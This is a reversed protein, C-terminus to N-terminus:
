SSMYLIEHISYMIEHVSYIVEHVSYMVEHVCYIIEHVSYVVDCLLGAAKKGCERPASCYLAAVFHECRRARDKESYEQAVETLAV